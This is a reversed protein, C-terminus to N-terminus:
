RRESSARPASAGPATNPLLDGYYLWRLLLLAALGSGVAAAALLERRLPTPGKSWALGHAAGRLLSLREILVVGLVLPAEPRSGAVLALPIYCSLSRPRGHTAVDVVHLGVGLVTLLAVLSTGMGTSAYYGFGPHGVLLGGLLLAGWAPLAHRLRRRRGKGPSTSIRAGVPVNGGFRAPVRWPQCEASATWIGVESLQM